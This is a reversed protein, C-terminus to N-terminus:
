NAVDVTGLADCNDIIPPPVREERRTFAAIATTAAVLTWPEAFRPPTLDIKEYVRHVFAKSSQKYEPYQARFQPEEYWCIKFTRFDQWPGSQEQKFDVGENGRAIKCHLRHENV